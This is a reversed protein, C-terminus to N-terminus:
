HGVSIMCNKSARACFGEAMELQEHSTVQVVYGEWRETKDGHGTKNGKDIGHHGGFSM